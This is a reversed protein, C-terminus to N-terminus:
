QLLKIKHSKYTSIEMEEDATGVADPIDGCSQNFFGSKKLCNAVTDQTM